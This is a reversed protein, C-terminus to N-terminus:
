AYPDPFGLKALIRRERDEMRRADADREHDHGQLHLLGHVVLHAYHAATPKGQERAERAVVPACIVIDGELPKDGYAFTLVNTAYDKGRFQRNLRRAETAAVIRLTVNASGRVAARAWRRLLSDSPVHSARSARQITLALASV